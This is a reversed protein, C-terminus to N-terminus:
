SLRLAAELFPGEAYVYLGSIGLAVGYPVGTDKTLLRDAFAYGTVPAIYGRAYLIAIAMVGGLASAFGFYEIADAPGIWFATAALLKADGGGFLGAAFMAFGFAFATLGFLSHALIEQSPMGTFYAAFPFAAALLLCLRNSITMTMIDSIAAYIMCLPFVITLFLFSM